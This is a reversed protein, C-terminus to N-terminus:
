IEAAGAAIERAAAAVALALVFVLAYVLLQHGALTDVVTQLYVPM